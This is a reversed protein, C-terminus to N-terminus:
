PAQWPAVQHGRPGPQPLQSLTLSSGLHPGRPPSFFLTCVQHTNM